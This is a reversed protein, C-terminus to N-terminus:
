SIKKRREKTESRKKKSEVRKVISSKTPRTAKRKKRIRLAENLLSILRGLVEEKNESQSRYKNSSLKLYGKDSIKNKLLEEIRIKQDDTLAHSANVNFYIDVKTEVKNVNQGGKGGSRSTKYLLEKKILNIQEIALVLRNM